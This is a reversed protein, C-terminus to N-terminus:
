MNQILHALLWFAEEEPVFLLMMGCIFNLSQCYGVAPVHLALARLVRRLSQIAAVGSTDPSGAGGSAVSSSRFKINEPFTRHLDAFKEARPGLRKEVEPYSKRDARIDAGHNEDQLGGPVDARSLPGSETAHPPGGRQLPALVTETAANSPHTVCLKPRKLSRRITGGAGGPYGSKGRLHAPVGKRVYRKVKPSPLPWLGGSEQLLADWKAKRAAVIPAYRKEFDRWMEESVHASKKEFGYADRVSRSYLVPRFREVADVAPAAAQSAGALGQLHPYAQQRWRQQQQLIQNHCTLSANRPRTRGQPLQAGADSSGEATRDRAPPAITHFDSFSSSKRLHGPRRVADSPPLWADVAADSVGGRISGDRPPPRFLVGRVADGRDEEEVEHGRQVPRRVSPVEGENLLQHFGGSRVHVRPYPASGKRRIG